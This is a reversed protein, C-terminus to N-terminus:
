RHLSIQGLLLGLVLKLTINKHCLIILRRLCEAPSWFSEGFHVCWGINIAFVEQHERILVM